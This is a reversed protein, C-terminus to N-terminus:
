PRGKRRKRVKRAEEWLRGDPVGRYWAEFETRTGEWRGSLPRRPDESLSYAMGEILWEPDSFPSLLGLEESQRHHIMEHRVYYDAWGRPGIVIGWRGLAGATSEFGFSRICKETSCFILRPPKRFPGVTREVFDSASRYLEAAGQFRAPDELCIDKDVCDVDGVWRPAFVRIPKYIAWAAIPIAILLIAAARV